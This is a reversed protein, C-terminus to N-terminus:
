GLTMRLPYDQGELITQVAQGTRLNAVIPALLNLHAGESSRSAVVLLLADEPSALELEAVQDDTLVPAYDSLVTRPDVLYLRLATDDIADLSFLGEAGDVAELAFETHPDFGPPPAIFRLM